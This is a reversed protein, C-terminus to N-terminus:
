KGLITQFSPYYRMAFTSASNAVHIILISAAIGEALILLVAFYTNIKWKM